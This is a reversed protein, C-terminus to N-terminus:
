IRLWKKIYSEKSMAQQFGSIDEKLEEENQLMDAAAAAIIKTTVIYAMDADRICFDAGHFSGCFGSFGIQILPIIASIDSLDDSAFTRSGNLIDERNLFYEANRAVYKSLKSYHNSPLYGPINEIDCQCGLALACHKLANDIRENADFIADINSARVYTEIVAKDPVTNVIFGSDKIIPHFRIHHDDRFTERLLGVANISLVAANLANRGMHPYAGSHASKGKFVATKAIFGNSAIDTEIKNGEHGNGHSSLVVDVDDFAGELILNQKGSFAKIRGEKLLSLRYEFELFEEAPAAILSVRGGAKELIGSEYIAKFAGAMVAMQANHGCSHAAFDDNSANPHGKTPLADMDCVLGIHTGSNGITAKFGTIAFEKLDSLKIDKIFELLIEKTKFEKYGLEPNEFLKTGLNIIEERRKDIIDTLLDRMKGGAIQM